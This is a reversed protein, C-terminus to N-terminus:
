GDVIILFDPRVQSARAVHAVLWAMFEVIQAVFIQQSMQQYVQSHRHNNAKSDSPPFEAERCCRPERRISRPWGRDPVDNRAVASSRCQGVKQAAPRTLAFPWHM